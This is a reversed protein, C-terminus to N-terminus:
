QAQSLKSIIPNSYNPCRHVNPVKAQPYFTWDSNKPVILYFNLEGSEIIDLLFSLIYSNADDRTFDILAEIAAMRVSVIQQESCYSKFLTPDNPIHGNRQLNRMARLCSVSVCLQYSPVLKDMNLCKVVEEVVLKM